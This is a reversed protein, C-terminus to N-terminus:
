APQPPGREYRGTSQCITEIERKSLPPDCRTKNAETLAATIEAVTLGKARLSAALHFMEENRRGETVKGPAEKSKTQKPKDRKGQLM